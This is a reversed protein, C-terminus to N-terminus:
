IKLKGERVNKLFEKQENISMNEMRGSLKEKVSRFFKLTDFKKEIATKM